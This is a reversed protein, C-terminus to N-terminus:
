SYFLIVLLHVLQPGYPFDRTIYGTRTVPVPQCPHPYPNPNEWGGSVRVRPAPQVPQRPNKETVVSRRGGGSGLWAM